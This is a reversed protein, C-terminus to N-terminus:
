RYLEHFKRHYYEKRKTITTSSIERKPLVSKEASNLYVSRNMESPNYHEDLNKLLKVKITTYANDFYLNRQEYPDKSLDFLQSHLEERNRVLKYQKGAIMQMNGEHSLSFVYEPDDGIFDNGGMQKPVPLGLEQLLFGAFDTNSNLHDCRSGLTIEGQLRSDVVPKVILPINVLPQYMYSNKLCMHHYGLYDGHDSTYVILTNEYLGREKLLKICEGIEYDIQSISAYNYAQIKQMKERTLESYPFFGKRFDEDGQSLEESWGPLLEMEEPAYMDAWSEPPDHPHHPKMFGAMLLNQQGTEWNTIEDRLHRGIWATTTQEECLNNVKAGQVEFYNSDAFKRYEDVQDELDNIDATGEDMLYEHYDDDWRGPGNQECLLMEDFGVDLYTPTFHMKGVAKTRYGAKQLIKPFTPIKYELTCHNTWGRHQHVELGSFFSYRSPTCVPYSCYSNTFLVGDSAIQDINPTKIQNNGYAGLCDARHQDAHFIIINPMNEPERM